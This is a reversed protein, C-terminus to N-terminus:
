EKLLAKKNEARANNIEEIRKKEREYVM